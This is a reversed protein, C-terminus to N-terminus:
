NTKTTSGAIKSFIDKAHNLPTNKKRNSQMAAMVDVIESISTITANIFSALALVRWGSLLCLDTIMTEAMIETIIPAHTKRSSIKLQDSSKVAFISIGSLANAIVM